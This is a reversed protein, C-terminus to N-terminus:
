DNCYQLQKKKSTITGCLALVFQAEPHTENPPTSDHYAELFSVLTSGTLHFFEGVKSQLPCLYYPPPFLLYYKTM